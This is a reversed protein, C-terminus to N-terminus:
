AMAVDRELVAESERGLEATFFNISVTALESPPFASQFRPDARLGAERACDLFIPLEILYQDSFGHTGDYAVAPTRDLNAAAVDPPLTHLELAILGFRGIYPAWRRLHRVLNEEQEDPLIEEGLYAFAGTSRSRRTGSTYNALRVYPRNHDLFSRIHLFDHIDLGLKELDGALQAPRNVDGGIVHYAHVAAKRLTQKSARRAVTNFDAGVLVLPHQDLVAGRSTRERVVSYLHALFTGDGCGMDCIGRPQQHIPRNFIEVVIEDVKRFYTHHAGGSGWVNMGRDVMTEIGSEDVRPFRSNGFLLANLRTFMPIYSVTVGYSTAIQAAYAGQPTLAVADSTREIWHQQALLDFVCDLMPRNGGLAEVDVPGRALRALVGARSLIVMVPGVLVGDLHQRLQDAVRAAAPHARSEIDWGREAKLVLDQLSPLPAGQGAGFLSDELFLTQPLFAAARGYLTPAWPLAVQGLETPRYSVFRGNREVRQELWGASALLRLAVRLYGRNGRTRVVIEDLDVWEPAGFADLVGRDALAQATPVLVLGALHAFVQARLAAKEADTITAPAMRETPAVFAM